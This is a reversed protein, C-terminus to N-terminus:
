RSFNESINGVFALSDEFRSFREPHNTMLARAIAELDNEGDMLQLVNKQLTGDESLSPLYSHARKRLQAFATVEAHFSSQTFLFDPLSQAASSRGNTNWQWVYEGAVLSAELHIAVEDGTKMEVAEPWPFYACGYVEPRIKGPGGSFGIGPVIETDFWLYFGHVSTHRDATLSVTNSFNSNKVSSYDIDAWKGAKSALHKQKPTVSRWQNAHRESLFQLNLGFDRKKWPSISKRHLKSNAALAVYLTDSFPLLHGDDALFRDRADAIIQINDGILPLIGRIDSLIVDAKEKLRTKRSDNQIWDIHDEFGCNKALTRGAQISNSPEIAYVKRAGLKCAILSFLGSGAGLDVVVSEPTIVSQLAKFYVDARVPDAFM